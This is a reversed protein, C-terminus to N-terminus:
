PVAHGADALLTCLAILPLGVLATPDPGDLAEILAIGLGEVKAAGACDYAPERALYAEIAAPSLTRFRVRTDVRVLRRLGTAACVLALGTHFTMTRGSAATLQAVARAHTGPKGIVTRGDLTATQDSGIVLAQPRLAGVADAKALALREAAEAPSEHALVAEDVHPPLVEFSLGLRALLERRYRSTSALILPPRPPAGADAVANM